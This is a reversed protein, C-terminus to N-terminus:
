FNLLRNLYNMLENGLDTKIHPLLVNAFESHETKYMILKKHANLICAEVNAIRDALKLNIAKQNAIIKKYLEKKREQRTAGNGDTVCFVIEATEKGFLIEIENISTSTDELIDHLWASNLLSIDTPNNFNLGFRLLTSV